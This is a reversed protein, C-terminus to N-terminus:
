KQRQRLKRRLRRKQKQKPSVRGFVNYRLAARIVEQDTLGDLSIYKDAGEVGARSAIKSVTIPNDGSIVKVEVQSEKFYRITNIADPRINDEILIMSIVVCEGTPLEGNEFEVDVVPGSVQVIKGINEM